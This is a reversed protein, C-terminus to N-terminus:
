LGGPLTVTVVHERVDLGGTDDHVEWGGQGALMLPVVLRLNPMLRRDHQVNQWCAWSVTETEGPRPQLRAPGDVWAAFCHIRVDQGRILGLRRFGGLALGTEEAAERRAAEAPSEGPEVKGGPLNLRGSQWAPRDKEIVVFEDDAQCLVLVYERLLEAM